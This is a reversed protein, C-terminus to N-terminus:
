GGAVATLVQRLRVTASHEQMARQRARQVMQMRSSENKLLSRARETLEQRTRWVIMQKGTEFLRTTEGEEWLNRAMIAAGAAAAELATWGPGPRCHGVLAVRAGGLLGLRWQPDDALGDWIGKAWDVTDWGRGSVRLPLGADLIARATKRLIVAPALVNRVLGLFEEQVMPDALDIGTETQAALLWRQAERPSWSDGQRELRERLANWLTKQSYLSIGAQDADDPPLDSLLLVGERPGDLPAEFAKPTIFAPVQVVRPGPWGKALLQERQRETSVVALDDRGEPFQWCDGSPDISVLWSVLPLNAEGLPWHHRCQELLIIQVNRGLCRGPAVPLKTREAYGDQPSAPDALAGPAVGEERSTSSPTHISGTRSTPTSGGGLALEAAASLGAL